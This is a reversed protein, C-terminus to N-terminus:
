QPAEGGTAPPPNAICAALEPTQTWGCKGNPQAECTAKGYCAYEPKFECTTIVDKGQEVCVTGSCGSKVCTVNAPPPQVPDHKSGGCAALAFSCLLLLRTM